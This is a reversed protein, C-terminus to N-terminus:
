EREADAYLADLEAEETEIDHATQHPHDGRVGGAKVRKILREIEARHNSYEVWEGDVETTATVCPGDVCSGVNMRWRTM